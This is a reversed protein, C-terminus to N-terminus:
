AAPEADMKSVCYGHPSPSEDSLALACCSPVQGLSYNSCLASSSDTRIHGVREEKESVDLKPPYCGM